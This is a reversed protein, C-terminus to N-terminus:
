CQLYLEWSICPGIFWTNMPSQNENFNPRTQNVSHSQTNHQQLMSLLTCSYHPQFSCIHSMGFAEIYKLDFRCPEALFFSCLWGTVAMQVSIWPYSSWKRRVELEGAREWWLGCTISHEKIAVQTECGDATQYWVMVARDACARPGMEDFKCCASQYKHYAIVKKSMDCIFQMMELCLLVGRQSPSDKNLFDNRMKNNLPLTIMFYEKQRLAHTWSKPLISGKGMSQVFTILLKSVNTHCSESLTPLDASLFIMVSLKHKLQM